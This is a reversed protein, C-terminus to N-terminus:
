RRPKVLRQALEALVEEVGVGRVTLMLLLHYLMDSVESKIEEKDGKKMALLAEIAEEGFKQLIRDEGEMYLKVTYSGEPKEKLREEITEQLRQLTEFPLVREVEQGELNRFFCNRRGTHCARNEEQMVIYLLADEDCDVRVELVRQLEGSTEGKKWITGRSRSYYHAYGTELTKKVAEENAWAFMRIEGTRWDQAIVPVLGDKNYKLELM